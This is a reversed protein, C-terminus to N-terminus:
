EELAEPDDVFTIGEFFAEPDFRKEPITGNVTLNSIRQTETRMKGRLKAETKQVTAFWVGPLAERYGTFKTTAVRKPMGAGDFVEILALRGADDLSVVTFTKGNDYGARRPYASTAPLPVEKVGALPQLAMEPSGPVSRLNVLMVAPLNSVAAEYGNPEGEMHVRFRTGDCVIRRALPAVTEVHMRDGRAFDVRSLMRATGGSPLPADRRVECSLNSVAAYPAVARQWLTGAGAETCVVALAVGWLPLCRKM